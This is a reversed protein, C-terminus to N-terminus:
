FIYEALVAHVWTTFALYMAHYLNKQVWQCIDSVHMVDGLKNDLDSSSVLCWYLTLVNRTSRLKPSCNLFHRLEVTTM